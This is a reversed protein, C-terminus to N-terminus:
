STLSHLLVELVSIEHTACTLVVNAYETSIAFDGSTISCECIFADNTWGQILSVSVYGM